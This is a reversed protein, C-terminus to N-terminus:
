EFSYLLHTIEPILQSVQVTIRGLPQFLRGLSTMLLNVGISFSLAKEKKSSSIRRKGLSALSLLHLM